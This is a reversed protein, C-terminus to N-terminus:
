PNKSWTKKGKQLNCDYFHSVSVLYEGHLYKVLPLHQLSSLHANCKQKPAGTKTSTKFVPDNCCYQPFIKFFIILISSNIWVWILGKNILAQLVHKQELQMNKEDVEEQCDSMGTPGRPRWDEHRMRWLGFSTRAAHTCPHRFMPFLTSCCIYQLCHVRLMYNDNDVSVM